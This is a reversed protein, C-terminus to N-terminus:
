CRDAPSTLLTLADFTEGIFTSSTQRGASGVISRGGGVHDALNPFHRGIKANPMVRGVLTDAGHMPWTDLLPSALLTRVTSAPMTIAQNYAFQYASELEVHPAGNAGHLCGRRCFWSVLDYDTLDFRAVYGLMNKAVIIDDEFLTLAVFDPCAAAARLAAFFTRAQGVGDVDEIVLKPGLWRDWGGNRLSAQTRERLDQRGPCTM